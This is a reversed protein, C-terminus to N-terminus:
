VWRFVAGAWLLCVALAGWLPSGFVALWGLCIFASGLLSLFLRDGPTTAFGLIGDRPAEPWRIQWFIMLGLLCAIVAFFVAGVGTWAMWNGPALNVTLDIGGKGPDLGAYLAAGFAVGGLALVLAVRNSARHPNM